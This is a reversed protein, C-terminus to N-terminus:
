RTRVVAQWPFVVDFPCVLNTARVLWTITDAAPTAYTKLVLGRRPNDAAVYWETLAACGHDSLWPAARGGLGHQLGIEGPTWTALPVSPGRNSFISMLGSRVPVHEANVGPGLNIFAAHDLHELLPTIDGGPLELLVDPV